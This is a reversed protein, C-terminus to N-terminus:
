FFTFEFESETKYGVRHFLNLLILKILARQQHERDGRAAANAYAIPHTLFRKSDWIRGGLTTRREVPQVRHSGGGGVLGGLAQRWIWFYVVFCRVCVCVDSGWRATLAVDWMSLSFHSLSKRRRGSGTEKQPQLKEDSDCLFNVNVATSFQSLRLIACGLGGSIHAANMTIRGKTKLDYIAFPKICILITNSFSCDADIFLLKM